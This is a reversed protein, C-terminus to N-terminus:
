NVLRGTFEIEDQTYDSYDICVVIDWTGRPLDTLSLNVIETADHEIVYDLNTQIELDEAERSGSDYVLVKIELVRQGCGLVEDPDISININEDNDGWQTIAPNSEDFEDSETQYILFHCGDLFAPNELFASECSGDDWVAKSDYNDAWEYMCGGRGVDDFPDEGIDHVDVIGVADLGAGGGLVLLLPMLSTLLKHFRDVKEQAREIADKSNSENLVGDDLLDAMVDEESRGSADALVKAKEALDAIDGDPAM